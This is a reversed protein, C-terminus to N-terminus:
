RIQLICSLAVLFILQMANKRGLSGCFIWHFLNWKYYYFILVQANRKNPVCYTQKFFNYFGMPPDINPFDHIYNM